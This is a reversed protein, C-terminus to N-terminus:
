QEVQNLADLPDQRPVRLMEGTHCRLMESEIRGCRESGIRVPLGVRALGGHTIESLHDAQCEM